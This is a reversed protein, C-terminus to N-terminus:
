GADIWWDPLSLGHRDYYAILRERNGSAAGDLGLWRLANAGMVDSKLEPFRDGFREHFTRLYENAGPATYIEHWDSGYMLRSQVVPFTEFMDELVAFTEDVFFDGFGFMPGQLGIDFFSADAYVNEYRTMLDAIEWARSERGEMAFHQDGGFHAFNVRLRPYKELVSEWHVPEIREENGRQATNGSSSHFTIPVDEAEAWAFLRDMAEDLEQHLHSFPALQDNASPRFGMVPYLKVGVFGMEQVALKVQELALGPAGGFDTVDRLPDYGVMPHIRGQFLRVLKEYLVIQESISTEADDELWPGFDLM